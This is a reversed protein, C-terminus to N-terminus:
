ANLKYLIYLGDSVLNKNSIFRENCYPVILDSLGGTAVLITDSGLIKKYRQAMGDMLSAMGLVVGSHMASTTDRGITEICDECLDIHPLQATVNSLTKLSSYVGPFIAGGLFNSDKDIASITTATGLDCVVAPFSYLHKVAVADCIRDSGLANPNKLCINLGTNLQNSVVMVKCKFIREVAHILISKLQPVVTSLIAGQFHEASCGNLKLINLFDIAYEDEMKNSITSIRSSFLMTDDKYVSLVINTNGVDITLIM